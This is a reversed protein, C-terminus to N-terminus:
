EVKYEESSKLIDNNTKWKTINNDRMFELLSPLHISSRVYDM